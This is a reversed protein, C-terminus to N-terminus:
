LDDTFQLSIQVCVATHVQRISWTAVPLSNPVTAVSRM